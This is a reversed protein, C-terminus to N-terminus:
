MGIPVLRMVMKDYVGKEERMVRTLITGKALKAKRKRQMRRRGWNMQPWFPIHPRRRKRNGARRQNLKRRKRQPLSSLLLFLLIRNFPFFRFICLSYTGMIPISYIIVEKQGMEEEKEVSNQQKGVHMIQNTFNPPCLPPPISPDFLPPPSNFIHQLPAAIALAPSETTLTTTTGFTSQKTTGM